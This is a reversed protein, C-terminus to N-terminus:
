KQGREEEAFRRWYNDAGEYKHRDLDLVQDAVKSALGLDHTIFTLSFGMEAQLELLLHLIDSRLVPDIGATVEDAILLTPSLVIGRAIALRAIEGGSLHHPYEQLFATTTPLAVLELSQKILLSREEKRGPGHLLLPEEVVERVTFRHSITEHPNQPILQVERKLDSLNYTVKGQFHRIQRAMVRALTTKGSGVKGVVAITEGRKIELSVPPFVEKGEYSVTVGELHCVTEIGGLLCRILRGPSVEQLPPFVKSCEKQKQFCRPAYPCGEGGAPARKMRELEKKRDLSPSSRIFQRTYPHLPKSFVEEKPGVEVSTGRIIFIVEDALRQAEEVNNTVLLIGKETKLGEIIEWVRRKSKRDMSSTPEDLLLIPPDLIMANLFLAKQREGGSVQHPYRELLGPSLGLSKIWGELDIRPPVGRKRSVELIQYTLPFSPDFWNFSNQFVMSVKTWRYDRLNRIAGLPLREEGIRIAGEMKAEDILGMIARAITSKGSGSEGLIAVLTGTKLEFSLERAAVVAEGGRVYEVQLGEVAIV